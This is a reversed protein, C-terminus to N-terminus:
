GHGRLRHVVFDPLRMQHAVDGAFGAQDIDVAMQHMFAGRRLSKCSDFRRPALHAPGVQGERHHIVRHGCLIPFQRNHVVIRPQLELRQRAVALLVAHVEEVHEAAILADHVDDPGLQADGLGPEGDDAAVAVSRRMARNARQGEADARAFHLVHQRRLAQLLVPRLGHQDVNLPLRGRPTEEFSRIRASMPLIPMEPPVPWTISYAPSAM